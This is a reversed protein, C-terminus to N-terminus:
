GVESRLDEYFAAKAAEDIGLPRNLLRQAVCVQSYATQLRFWYLYVDPHGSSIAAAYEKAKDQLEISAQLLTM